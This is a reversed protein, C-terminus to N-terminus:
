LNISIAGWAPASPRKWISIRVINCWKSTTIWWSLYKIIIIKAKQKQLNYINHASFILEANTESKQKNDSQGSQQHQEEEMMWAQSAKRGEVRVISQEEDM